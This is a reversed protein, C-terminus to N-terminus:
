ASLESMIPQMWYGWFNAIALSNWDYDDYYDSKIRFIYAFCLFFAGTMVTTVIVPVDFMACCYWEDDNDNREYYDNENFCAWYHSNM